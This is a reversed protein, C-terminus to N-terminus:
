SISLLISYVLQIHPPRVPAWRCTVASKSNIFSLAQSSGILSYIYWYFLSLFSLLYSIFQINPGGLHLMVRLTPSLCLRVQDLRTSTTQHCCGGDPRYRGLSYPTYFDSNLTFIQVLDWVWVAMGAKLTNFTFTFIDNTIYIIYTFRTQTSFSISQFYNYWSGSNWAWRTYTFLSPSHKYWGWHKGLTNLFHFHIYINRGAGLSGPCEVTRLIPCM